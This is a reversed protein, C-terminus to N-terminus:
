NSAMYNRFEDSSIVKKITEAYLSPKKGSAVTFYIVFFKLKSLDTESVLKKNTIVVALRHQDGKYDSDDPDSITGTKAYLYYEQNDMIDNGLISGVEKATGTKLVENMGKFFKKRANVYEDTTDKFKNYPETKHKTINLFYDHNLSVMRGFSESMKWPTVMWVKKAGIATNLVGNDMFDIIRGGRSDFKSKEIYAYGNFRKNRELAIISDTPSSYSYKNFSESESYQSNRFFMETMRKNLLCEDQAKGGTEPTNNFVINTGNYTIIPFHEKISDRTLSNIKRFLSGDNFNGIFMNNNEFKRIQQLSFSGIYAMVANYVNSSNKMYTDLSVRGGNNEDSKLPKFLHNSQFKKDAFKEIKYHKEDADGIANDYQRISLTDWPFKIGSAVATWVLPKQTSGPGANMHLLNKNGFLRREEKSGNLSYMYLSDYIQAIKKRENPNLTAKKDYSAMVLVDGDGNAVIVSGEEFNGNDATEKLKNYIDENLKKSITLEIDEESYENATKKADYARGNQANLQEAFHRAWFFEPGVSYVFMTRDNVLLNRAIYEKHPITKEIAKKVNDNDINKINLPQWVVTSIYNNNTKFNNTQTTIETSDATKFIADNNIHGTWTNPIRYATTNGSTFISDKKQKSLTTINGRWYEYDKDPLHYRYAKKFTCLKIRSIRKQVGNITITDKVIRAHLINGSSNKVSGTKLFEGWLREVMKIATTPNQTEYQTLISDIHMDTHFDQVISQLQSAFKKKLEREGNPRRIISDIQYERFLPDINNDIIDGVDNLLNGVEFHSNQINNKAHTNDTSVMTCLLLSLSLIFTLKVGDRKAVDYRWLNECNPDDDDDNDDFLEHFNTKENYVIALWIILLVFYIVLALRSNISLLPFDQGLFIFRRTNTMWILIAEITLFLPIQILISRAWRHYVPLLAGAVTMGIFLLIIIIPILNGHEAIVFRVLSIDTLQANWTAGITSHPQMKFYGYSDEGWQKVKTGRLAYEKIILHNEAAQMYKAHETNTSIDKLSEEPTLFHVSIRQTIHQSKTLFKNTENTGLAFLAGFLILWIWFARNKSIFKIHSENEETPQLANLIAGFIILFLIVGVFATAIYTNNDATRIIYFLEKYHYLLLVFAIFLSLCAIDRWISYVEDSLYTTVYEHLYWIIYIIAFTLFLICFGPDIVVLPIAIIFTLAIINIFQKIPASFNLYLIKEDSLKYHSLTRSNSLAVLGIYSVTLLPICLWAQNRTVFGLGAILLALFLSVKDISLIIKCILLLPETIITNIIPRLIKIFWKIIPRLVKIIPNIIPRLLEIFKLFVNKIGLFVKHFYIKIKLIIPKIKLLWGKIRLRLSTLIRAPKEKMREICNSFFYGIKKKYHIYIKILLCITVFAVMIFELCYMNNSTIDNWRTIANTGRFLGLTYVSTGEVPPFVSARWLLLWRFAVMYLTVMYAVMEVLTFPNRMARDEDQMWLQGAFLLVLLALAIGFGFIWYKINSVVYPSTARLDDLTILWEGLNNNFDTNSFYHNEGGVITRSTSSSSEEQMSPAYHVTLPKTTFGAKYTLQLSKLNNSNDEHEFVDFLLLKDFKGLDDQGTLDNLSTHVNVTNYKFRDNATPLYHMRPMKYLLKLGNNGTPAFYMQKDANPQFGISFVDGYKLTINHNIPKYLREWRGDYGVKVYEIKPMESQFTNQIEICYGVDAYKERKSTGKGIIPYINPRIINLASFDAENDSIGSLIGTLPLGRELIRHESSEFTQGDYELHYIMSDQPSPKLFKSLFDRNDRKVETYFKYIKSGQKLYLTDGDNFYIMDAANILESQEIRGDTTYTHVYIGRSFDRLKLTIVSDASTIYLEGRISKNDWFADKNNGALMYHNTDELKIGRLSVVHHEVNQYVQEDPYFYNDLTKLTLSSLLILEVATLLAFEFNEKGTVYLENSRQSTTKSQFYLYFLINFIICSLFTIGLWFINISVEKWILFGALAIAVLIIAIWAFIKKTNM